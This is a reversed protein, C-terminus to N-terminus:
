KKPEKAPCGNQHCPLREIQNRLKEIADSTKEHRRDIKNLRDSLWWVGGAITMAMTWDPVGVASGLLIIFGLGISIMGHAVQGLFETQMVKLRHM